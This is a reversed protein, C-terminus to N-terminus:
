MSHPQIGGKGKCLSFKRGDVVKTLSDAVNSWNRVKLTTVETSEVVEKTHHFKVRIHKIWPHFKSNKPFDIASPNNFFIPM